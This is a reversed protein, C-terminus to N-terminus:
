FLNRHKEKSHLAAASVEQSIFFLQFPLVGQGVIFDSVSSGLSFSGRGEGEVVAEAREQLEPDSM